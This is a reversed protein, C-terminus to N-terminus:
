RENDVDDVDLRLVGGRLIREVVAIDEYTDIQIGEAQTIPYVCIRDGGLRCKTNILVTKKTIYINGNDFYLVDKLPLDQRMPRNAPDYTSDWGQITKFWNFNYYKTTAVLSDCYENRFMHIANHIRGRLRIPSTPQLMMVADCEERLPLADLLALESSSKDTCLEEPRRHAVVGFRDAIDLVDDDNSSVVINSSPLGSELAQTISYSVLPTGNLPYINKRPVGKSGARAPIVCLMKNM